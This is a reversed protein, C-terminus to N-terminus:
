LDQQIQPLSCSLLCFFRLQCQASHLLALALIALSCCTFVFFRRGQSKKCDALGSTNICKRLLSSSFVALSRSFNDANRNKAIQRFDAVRKRSKDNVLSLVPFIALSRSFLRGQSKRLCVIFDCIECSSAFKSLLVIFPMYKVDVEIQPSDKYFLENFM